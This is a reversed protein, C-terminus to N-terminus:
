KPAAALSEGAPPGGAGGESGQADTAVLANFSGGVLAPLLFPPASVRLAGTRSAELPGPPSGGRGNARAPAAAPAGVVAAPRAPLAVPPRGNTGAKTLPARATAAGAAVLPTRATAAGAAALPQRPPARAV